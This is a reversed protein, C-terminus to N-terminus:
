LLDVRLRQNKDLIKTFDFYKVDFDGHESVIRKVEERIINGLRSNLIRQKKIHYNMAIISCIIDVCTEIDIM